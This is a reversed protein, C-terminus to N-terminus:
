TTDWAWRVGVACSVSEASLAVALLACVSLLWLRM